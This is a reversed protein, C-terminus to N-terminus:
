EEGTEIGSEIMEMLNLVGQTYMTDNEQLHKHLEEKLKNWREDSSLQHSEQQINAELPQVISEISQGNKELSDAIRELSKAIRPMTGQYFQQGMRTQSFDLM